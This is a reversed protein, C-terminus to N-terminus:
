RSLNASWRCADAFGVYPLLALFVLDPDGEGLSDITGARVHCSVIAAIVSVVSRDSSGPLRESRPAGDGLLAAFRAIMELYDGDEGPGGSRSDIALARAADPNAILFEILANIGGAIRAPWEEHRACSAVVTQEVRAFASEFTDVGGEVDVGGRFREFGAETEVPMNEATLNM